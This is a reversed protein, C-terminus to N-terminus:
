FDILNFHDFILTGEGKHKGYYLAVNFFEHFNNFM